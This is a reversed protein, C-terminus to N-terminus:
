IKSSVLVLALENSLTHPEIESLTLSDEKELNYVKGTKVQKSLDYFRVEGLTTTINQNFLNVRDISVATILGATKNIKVLTTFNNNADLDNLTYHLKNMRTVFIQANTFVGCLNSAFNSNGDFSQMEFYPFDFQPFLLEKSSSLRNKIEACDIPQLLAITYDEDSGLISGAFHVLEGNEIVCIEELKNNKYRGWFLFSSLHCLIPSALVCEEFSKKTYNRFEYFALRLRKKLTKLYKEVDKRFKKLEYLEFSADEQFRAIHGTKKNIISVTCNPNIRLILEKSRFTYEREGNANFGFDLSIKDAVEEVNQKVHSSYKILRTRFFKDDQKTTKQTKLNKVLTLFQKRDALALMEIYYKFADKNKEDSFNEEVVKNMVATLDDDACMAILRLAWKSGLLRNTEMGVDFVVHCLKQLVDKPVYCFYDTLKGIKMEADKDKLTEMVFTLVKGDLGKNSLNYKKYFRTLRIGYLREQPVGVTKDVYALFDDKDSFTKLSSFGLTRELYARVRDDTTKNFIDAIIDKVRRDDSLLCMLQVARYSADLDKGNYIQDLINFAEQKHKLLAKKMLSLNNIEGKIYENILTEVTKVTSAEAFDVLGDSKSSLLGSVFTDDDDKLFIDIYEKLPEKYNAMLSNVDSNFIGLFFPTYLSREIKCYNIIEVFRDFYREKMTYERRKGAYKVDGIQQLFIRNLFACLAEFQKGKLLFEVFRKLVNKYGDMQLIVEGFESTEQNDLPTQRAANLAESLIQDDHYGDLLLYNVMRDSVGKPLFSDCFEFTFNKIDQVNRVYKM